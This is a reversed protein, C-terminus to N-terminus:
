ASHWPLAVNADEGPLVLLTPRALYSTTPASPPIRSIAHLVTLSPKGHQRYWCLAKAAKLVPSSVSRPSRADLALGTAHVRQWSGTAVMSQGGCAYRLAAPLRLTTHRVTSM